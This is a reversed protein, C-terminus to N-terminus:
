FFDTVNNSMQHLVSKELEASTRDRLKVREFQLGVPLIVEPYSGLAALAALVLHHGLALDIQGLGCLGRGEGLAQRGEDPDQLVFGKCKFGLYSQKM